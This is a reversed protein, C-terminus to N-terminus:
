ALDGTCGLRNHPLDEASNNSKTGTRIKISSTLVALSYASLGRGNQSDTGTEGMGCYLYNINAFINTYSPTYIGTGNDAVSSMNFSDHFAITGTGDLDMFSKLLGQQLNTTVSGSTVLISGATTVGTFKDVKLESAM